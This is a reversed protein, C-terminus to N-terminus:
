GAGQRVVWEACIPLLKTAKAWRKTVACTCAPHLRHGKNEHVHCGDLLRKGAKKGVDGFCLHASTHTCESCEQSHFLLGLVPVATEPYMRLMRPQSVAARACAGSQAAPNSHAAKYLRPSMAKAELCSVTSEM